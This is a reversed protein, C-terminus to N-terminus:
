TYKWIITTKWIIEEMWIKYNINEVYKENRGQNSGYCGKKNEM